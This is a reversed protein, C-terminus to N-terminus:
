KCCPTNSGAMAQCHAGGSAHGAAAHQGSPACGGCGHSAPTPVPRPAQTSAILAQGGKLPEAAHTIALTATLSWVSLALLLTMNKM